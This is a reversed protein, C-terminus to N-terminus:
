GELLKKVRYETYTEYYKANAPHYMDTAYDSINFINYGTKALDDLKKKCILNEYENLKALSTISGNKVIYEQADKWHFTEHLMTSLPNNSCAMQKKYEIAKEIKDYKENLYLVNDIANYAASANSLMEKEGVICIKPLSNDNSVGLMEYVKTARTEIEHLAKPKIKAQTSLYVNHKIGILRKAEIGVSEGHNTRYLSITDDDNMIAPKYFQSNDDSPAPVVIKNSYDLKNTSIGAIQKHKGSKEAYNENLMRINDRQMQAKQEPPLSKLDKDIVAELICHCNIAEAAPLATDHPLMPHYTAGDRGTLTFPQDKPVTQGSINIHNERSAAGKAGTHRWRKANVVPSQQLAEYKAYAHTRMMETQAVRRAEYYEDRLRDDFIRKAADDVSDGNNIAEQIINSIEDTVHRLVSTGAQVSAESVAAATPVSIETVSLEADTQRIYQDASAQLVDGCTEDVAQSVAQVLEADAESETTHSSLFSFLSESNLLSTKESKHWKKMATAIRKELLSIQRVTMAAFAIGMKKLKDYLKDNDKEIIRNICEVIEADCCAKRDM